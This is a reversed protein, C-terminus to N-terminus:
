YAINNLSSNIQYAVQAEKEMKSTIDKKQMPIRYTKDGEGTFRKEEVGSIVGWCGTQRLAMSVAFKWDHTMYGYKVHSNWCM